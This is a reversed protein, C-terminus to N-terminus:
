GTTTGTDSNRDKRQKLLARPDDKLAPNGPGRKEPLDIGRARAEAIEKGSLFKINIAPLSAAVAAPDNWEVQVPMKKHLYPLCHKAASIRVELENREDVYVSMLFKLPTFGEFETLLALREEVTLVNPKSKGRNRAGNPNGCQGPKFSTKTRVGVAGFGRFFLGAFPM